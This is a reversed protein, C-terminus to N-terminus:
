AVNPSNKHYGASQNMGIERGIEKWTRRHRKKCVCAIRFCMVVGIEKRKGLRKTTYIGERVLM